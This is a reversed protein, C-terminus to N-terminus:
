EAKNAKPKEVIDSVEGNVNYTAKRGRRDITFSQEDSSTRFVITDGKIEFSALRQPPRGDDAMQQTQTFM